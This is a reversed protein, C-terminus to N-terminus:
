LIFSLAIGIFVVLGFWNNNLFAKFCQPRQRHRILVQQYVFLLSGIGLGAYFPWQLKFQQGVMVLAV